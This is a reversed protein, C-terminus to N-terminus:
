DNTVEWMFYYQVMGHLFFLLFCSLLLKNYGHFKDPMDMFIQVRGVKCYHM